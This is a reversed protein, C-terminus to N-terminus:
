GGTLLRASRASTSAPAPMEALATGDSCLSLLYLSIVLAAGGVEVDWVGALGLRERADRTCLGFLLLTGTHERGADADSCAGKLVLLTLVDAAADSKNTGDLWLPSLAGTHERGADANRRRGELGLLTLGGVNGRGAAANSRTGGLELPAPVDADAVNQAGDLGLPPLLCAHRRGAVADCHRGETGAAAVVEGQSHENFAFSGATQAGLLSAERRSGAGGTAM